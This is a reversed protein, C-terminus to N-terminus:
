QTFSSNQFAYTPERIKHTILALQM